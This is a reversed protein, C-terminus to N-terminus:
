ICFGGLIGIKCLGTFVCKLRLFRPNTNVFNRVIMKLGNKFYPFSLYLSEACRCEAYHCEAYPAKIHCEAYCHEAIINLTVNWKSHHQIDNHQTDNHRIDNHQTDNHQTAYRWLSSKLTIVFCEPSIRTLNTPKVLVLLKKQEKFGV